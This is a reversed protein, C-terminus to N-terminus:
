AGSFETSARYACILINQLLFNPNSTKRVHIHALFHRLRPQLEHHLLYLHIRSIHVINLQFRLLDPIQVMHVNHLILIIEDM